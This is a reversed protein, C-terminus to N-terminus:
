WPARMWEGCSGRTSVVAGEDRGWLVRPAGTRGKCAIPQVVVRYGPLQKEERWPENMPDGRATFQGRHSDNIAM